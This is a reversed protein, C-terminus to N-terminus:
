LDFLPSSNDSNVSDEDDIEIIDDEGVDEALGMLVDLLNNDEVIDGNMYLQVLKTVKAPSLRNRRKTLIFDYISWARESAAQSTPVKFVIKAVKYLIPYESAGITYWYTLASNSDIFIVAKASLNKMDWVFRQYEALIEEENTCFGKRVSYQQILISNDYMDDGVLGAGARTKPDLFYAFGMSETHLFAWRDQVLEIIDEDDKYDVLFGKFLKYIDSLCCTDSELVGVAKSTPRLAKEAVELSAWFNDNKILSSFLQKKPKVKKTEKIGIFVATEILQKLVVKNELVRRVCGHHTYWRTNGVSLLAGIKELDGEDHLMNQIKEFGKTLANRDRVFATIAKAQQLTDNFRDLNCIDKVLLNITHAACGNVILGPHKARLIEWAKKMNAANDTVLSVAKQDGGLDNIVDDITEKV